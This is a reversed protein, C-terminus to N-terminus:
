FALSACSSILKMIGGVVERADQAQDTSVLTRAVEVLLDFQERNRM